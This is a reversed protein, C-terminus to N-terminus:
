RRCRSPQSAGIIREKLVQLLQGAEAYLEEDEAQIGEHVKLLSWVKLKHDIKQALDNWKRGCDWDDNVYEILWESECAGLCRIQGINFASDNNSWAKVESGCCPCNQLVLKETKSSQRTLETM